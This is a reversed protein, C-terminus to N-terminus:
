LTKQNVQRLEHLALALVLAGVVVSNLVASKTAFKLVFPAAILWVGILANIWEEWTQFATLAIVEVALLAFGAAVTARVAVTEHGFEVIWPSLVLWLALGWGVGDQWHTPQRNKESVHGEMM